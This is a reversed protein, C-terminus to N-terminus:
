MFSSIVGSITLWLDCFVYSIWVANFLYAGATCGSKLFFFFSASTTSSFLFYSFTCNIDVLMMFSGTGTSFAYFVWTVTELSFM